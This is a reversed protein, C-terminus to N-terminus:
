RRSRVRRPPRDEGRPTTDIDDPVGDADHDTMVYLVPSDHDSTRLLTEPDDRHADPADANGRSFAIGRIFPALSRSTLMHDLAQARGEFIFSYRESAPLRDIENRLDSEVLDICPLLEELPDCAGRIMGVVEVLGDTFEFANFDGTVVIRRVPVEKQIADIARALSAAQEFRKARVRSDLDAGGLSRQHVAIVTLPFPTGNGVYVADMLFPPRDHLLSNDTSLRESAGIQASRIVRVSDRTLFGVDIGSFDNGEALHAEYTAGTRALIMAALDQLVRVNEAEQVALIDPLNLVDDIYGASKALRRQYIQTSVGNEESDNIAPDNMDDFLRMLNLSAVTLVGSAGAPAPRPLPAQSHSFASPLIRYQDFTFTLPGTASFASGANVLDGQAAVEFAEYLPREEGPERFPRGARAVGKFNGFRDTPEAVTGNEVRVLMGEYRELENKLPSPRDSTFVVAPPLPRGSGTVSVSPRDFETLDFYETVLGSVDVEDGIQVSPSSSTFVYIGDSTEIDGDSRTEPTQMFFGQAQVSTVINGRTTVIQGEFPSAAGSGQLDFIERSSQATLPFALACVLLFSGIKM